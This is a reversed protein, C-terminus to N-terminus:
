EKIKYWISRVKLGKRLEKEIKGEEALTRLVRSATSGKYRRDMAFKELTGGNQWEANEKLLWLLESKLTM